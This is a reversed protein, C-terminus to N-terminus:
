DRQANPTTGQRCQLESHQPQIVMSNDALESHNPKNEKMVTPPEYGSARGSSLVPEELVRMDELPVVALVTETHSVM